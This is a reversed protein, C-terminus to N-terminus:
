SELNKVREDLIQFMEMISKCGNWIFRCTSVSLRIMFEDWNIKEEYWSYEFGEPSRDWGDPDEIVIYDEIIDQWEQSTKLM